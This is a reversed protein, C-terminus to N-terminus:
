NCNESPDEFITMTRDIVTQASVMTCCAGKCLTMSQDIVTKATVRASVMTCGAAKFDTMSRDIVTKVHM